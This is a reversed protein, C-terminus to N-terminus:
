LQSIILICGEERKGDLFLRAVEIGESVLGGRNGRLDLVLRQAGAAQLSQVAAAVDRQAKATFSSLKIVGVDGELRSAVPSPSKPTDPRVVRVTGETGDLRRVRLLIEKSRSDAGLSGAQDPSNDDAQAQLLSAVQFPSQGTLAADDVAVIEDGQRMGAVEAPSNRIIGVVWVGGSASSEPASSVAPRAPVLDTKARLDELTGLNVGVGSVDYKMMAGFEQPSLFRSYPDRLYSLMERVASHAAALYPLPKALAQDRVSSWKSAEFGAGRADEYNRYVVDYVENVLAEAAARQAATDAASAPSMLASAAGRIATLASDTRTELLRVVGLLKDESASALDLADAAGPNGLQLCAVALLLAAWRLAAELPTLGDKVACQREFTNYSDLQSFARALSTGYSRGKLTIRVPLRHNSVARASLQAACAVVAHRCLLNM